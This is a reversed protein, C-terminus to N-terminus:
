KEGKDSAAADSCASFMQAYIAVYFPIGLLSLMIWEVNNM